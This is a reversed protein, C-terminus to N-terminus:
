DFFIALTFIPFSKVHHCHKAIYYLVLVVAIDLIKCSLLIRQLNLDFNKCAVNYLIIYPGLRLNLLM